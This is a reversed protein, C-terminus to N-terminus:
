EAGEGGGCWGGGLGIGKLRKGEEMKGGLFEWKESIYAYKAHGRRIDLIKWEKNKKLQEIIQKRREPPLTHIHLFGEIDDLEEQNIPAKIEENSKNNEEPELRIAKSCDVFVENQFIIPTM